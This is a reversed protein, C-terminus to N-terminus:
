EKTIFEDVNLIARAVLTWAAIEQLNGEQVKGGAEGAIKAADLDGSTLRKKQADFFEALRLLEDATPPRSLCRRFLFTIREDVEEGRGDGM